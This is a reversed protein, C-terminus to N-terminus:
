VAAAMGVFRMSRRRLGCVMLVIERDNCELLSDASVVADDACM